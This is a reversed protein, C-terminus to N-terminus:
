IKVCIYLIFKSYNQLYLKEQTKRAYLHHVHVSRIDVFPDVHDCQEDWQHGNDQDSIELQQSWKRLQGIDDREDPETDNQPVYEGIQWCHRRPRQETFRSFISQKHARSQKGQFGDTHYTM